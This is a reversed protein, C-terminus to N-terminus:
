AFITDALAGAQAASLHRHLEARILAVVAPELGGQDALKWVARGVVGERIGRERASVERLRRKAQARQQDLAALREELRAAARRLPEAPTPNPSAAACDPARRPFPTSM